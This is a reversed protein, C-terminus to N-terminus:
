MLIIGVNVALMKVYTKTGVVMKPMFSFEVAVVVQQVCIVM